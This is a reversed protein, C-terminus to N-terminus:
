ANMKLIGDLAANMDQQLQQHRQEAEEVITDRDPKSKTHDKRKKKLTPMLDDLMSDLNETLQKSKHADFSKKKKIGASNQAIKPASASRTSTKASASKSSRSIPKKTPRM